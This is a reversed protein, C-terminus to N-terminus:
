KEVKQNAKKEASKILRFDEFLPQNGNFLRKKILECYEPKIEIGISDRGLRRAVKLTTGSGAFIDMIIADKKTTKIPREVLKEPFVAFHAEPYGRTTIDWFDVDEAHKFKSEKPRKSHSYFTFMGQERAKRAREDDRLNDKWSDSPNKGLPNNQKEAPKTFVETMQKDYKDDLSLIDKLWKYDEVSPFSEANFWHHPAQSELRSEIEDITVGQKKRRDNIYKAFERPDPLDRYEVIEKNREAVAYPTQIVDDPNKGKPHVFRKMDEGDVQLKYPSDPHSHHPKLSREMSAQLHPERVADLDFYYKKSKSFMFLYEWSNAFRDKVSTPMHNPKHWIIKNRLIWGRNIMEIMFREPIACLCKAKLNMNSIAPEQLGIERIERKHIKRLNIFLEERFKLNEPKTNKGNTKGPKKLTNECLWIIAKAQEKKIKLYPYILKAIEGAEQGRVGWDWVGRKQLTLSGLGTIKHAFEVMERDLMGVSIDAQYSSVSNEREQKHIQISGEADIMSALWWRYKEEILKTGFNKKRQLNKHSLYPLTYIEKSKREEPLNKQTGAGSAFYTDSLNIWCTGDKKLVRKVEDFIDAMHKIFLNFDPELGLQGKWAGCLSCFNSKTDDQLTTIKKEDGFGKGHTGKKIVEDWDHECDKKGDWISETGAGYDRLGWYPPSTIQMDVSEDPMQKLAKMVDMQYVKIM